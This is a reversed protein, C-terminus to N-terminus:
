GHPGHGSDGGCRDKRAPAARYPLVGRRVVCRQDSAPRDYGFLSVNYAHPLGAAFNGGYSVQYPYGYGQDQFYAVNVHNGNPDQIRTLHWAFTNATTAASGPRVIRSGPTGGFTYVLGSPWVMRLATAADATVSVHVDDVRAAWSGNGVRVLEFRRNPLIVQLADGVDDYRPVGRRTVREVHGLPLEWGFGVETDRTLHSHVLRLDPQLGNRGPPVPFPYEFTASGTHPGVDVALAMGEFTAPTDGVNAGPPAALMAHGRPAVAILSCLVVGALLTVCRRTAHMRRITAVYATIGVRSAAIFTVGPLACEAVGRARAVHGSV